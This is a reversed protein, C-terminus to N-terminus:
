ILLIISNLPFDVFSYVKRDKSFPMPLIFLLYSLSAIPYSSGLKRKKGGAWSSPYAHARAHTHKCMSTNIMWKLDTLMRLTLSRQNSVRILPWMLTFGTLSCPWVSLPRSKPNESSDETEAYCPHHTFGQYTPWLPLPDTMTAASSMTPKWSLPSCPPRQLSLSPGGAM